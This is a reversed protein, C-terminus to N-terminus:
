HQTDKPGELLGASRAYVNEEPSVPVAEVLKASAAIKALVKEMFALEKASLTNLVHEPITFVQEVKGSVETLQPIIKCVLHAYVEPRERALWAYYGAAEFLGSGDFGCMQAGMQIALRVESTLKNPVGAPRGRPNAVQGEKITTENKKAKHDPMLRKREAM